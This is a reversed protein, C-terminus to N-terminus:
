KDPWHDKEFAQALKADGAQLGSLALESFGRGVGATEEIGLPDLTSITDSIGQATQALAARDVAFGDAM